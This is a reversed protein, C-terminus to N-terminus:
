AHNLIEQYTKFHTKCIESFIEPGKAALIARGVEQVEKSAGKPLTRGIRDGLQKLGELFAARALISAAAVIPDSEARHRQTIDISPLKKRELAKLVVREDAFQDIIVRRCQTKEVLESIATAHGWALLSNLNHFEAYLSNYKAPSIRIISHPFQKRIKQSLELSTADNLKKSDKVGLSLLQKISDGEAYVGAICLPGFFDGKGSEDIGIRGAMDINAEPYSYNLNLLIEPELYFRLFEDKDKGQVVLKGSTYLACTVGKKQASFVTYAPQTFQFGQEDLDHRLKGALELSIEATFVSSKEKM